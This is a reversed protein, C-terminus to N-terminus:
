KLESAKSKKEIFGFPSKFYTQQIWNSISIPPFTNTNTRNSLVLLNFNRHLIGNSNYIYKSKPFRGLLVQAHVFQFIIDLTLIVALRSGM